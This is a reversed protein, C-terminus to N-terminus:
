EIVEGSGIIFTKMKVTQGSELSNWKEYDISIQKEKGKQNTGIVYYVEYKNSIRENNNLSVDGWYPSKDTAQTKVNREYVWKDIEYYYKTQYVPEDRYVPEEYYETEYYTEYIPRQDIIEEFYGNGLDRYGAVYDEYGSIRQKAVERTKTEYHDIVQKYHSIENNTYKLRAGAPLVWDSEQVTKYEEIEINREWKFNNITFAETKPILLYILGIILAIVAPIVLLLKWRKKVFDKASDSFGNNEYPLDYTDEQSNKYEDECKTVSTKSKNERSFYDLNESTRKSGCSKCNSDDASNLSDCYPCIWDPNRNIQKAKEESVYNIESPMYFKTEDDRPRGCNPCERNSGGIAKTGCYPCDWLGEILRGM